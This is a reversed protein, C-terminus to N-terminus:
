PSPCNCVENGKDFVIRWAGSADRRWISTFRAILKGQPDRVPGSSLALTGSELLEVEDPEWSFPATPSTYYRKWWDLVQQRGRLPKPGSFFVAEEAIFAAFAGLNRDAMTRAFARETAFVQERADAIGPRAPSLACGALLACLALAARANSPMLERVTDIDDTSEAQHITLMASSFM